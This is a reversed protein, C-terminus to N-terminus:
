FEVEGPMLDPGATTIAGALGRIEDAELARDGERRQGELMTVAAKVFTRRTGSEFSREGLERALERINSAQTAAEFKHGYALESLDALRQGIATLLETTGLPLHDLDIIPQLPSQMSFHTAGKLRQALAPYEPVVTDMFEPPVAYAWIVGPLLSQGCADIMQRLNDGIDRRRRTSLSMNRDMEDFMMVLGPMIFDIYVMGDMEGIRAGILNGFIIFYLAVMVVPPIITQVWIRTFRLVERRAITLYAIWFQYLM